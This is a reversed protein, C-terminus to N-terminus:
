VTTVLEAHRSPTLQGQSLMCGSLSWTDRRKGVPGCAQGCCKRRLVIASACSPAQLCYHGKCVLSSSAAPREAWMGNAVCLLDWTWLWCGHMWHFFQLTMHLPHPSLAVFIPASLTGFCRVPNYKYRVVDTRDPKGRLIASWVWRHKRRQRVSSRGEPSLHM